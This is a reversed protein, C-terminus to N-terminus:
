WQGLRVWRLEEQLMHAVRVMMVKQRADQLQQIRDCLLDALINIYKADTLRNSYGNKFWGDEHKIAFLSARISRLDKLTAQLAADADIVKQVQREFYSLPQFEEAFDERLREAGYIRYSEAEDILGQDVLADIKDAYERLRRHLELEVTDM